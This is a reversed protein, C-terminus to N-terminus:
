KLLTLRKVSQFAGARMRYFYTGSPLDTADFVVSYEGAEMAKDVLRLALRGSVDFVDLAVHLRESVAFRITTSPNFPNPFNQSLAYDRPVESDVHENAVGTGAIRTTLTARGGTAAEFTYDQVHNLPGFDSEPKEYERMQFDLAAFEVDTLPRDYVVVLASTFTKQSAVHDPNRVGVKSTIDDMTLERIGDALYVDYAFTVCANPDPSGGCPPPPYVTNQYEPNILSRIPEAVESAPILGMFYLELDSYVGSLPIHMARYERDAGAKVFQRYIGNNLHDSRPNFGTGSREVAKWHGTQTIDPDKVFAVWRHLLEHNLLDASPYTSVVFGQLHGSSGYEASKDPLDLGLGQVDSNVHSFYGGLNKWNFLVAMILFDRDDPLVSYYENAIQLPDFSLQPFVGDFERVINVVYDTAHINEALGGRNIEPIEVSPDVGILAAYGLPVFGEEEHADAFVFTLNATTITRFNTSLNGRVVDYARAITLQDRTFLGDGAVEDGQSGDDLLTISDMYEGDLSLSGAAMRVAVVNPDDVGIILRATEMGIRIAFPEFRASTVAPLLQSTPAYSGSNTWHFGTSCCDESVSNGPTGEVGLLAALLICSPLSLFRFKM